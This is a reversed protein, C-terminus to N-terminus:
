TRRIDPPIPPARAPWLVSRSGGCRGRSAEVGSQRMPRLSLGARARSSHDPGSPSGGGKATCGAQCVRSAAEGAGEMQGRSRMTLLRGTEYPRQTNPYIQKAGFRGNVEPGRQSDVKHVSASGISRAPGVSGWWPESVRSLLRCGAWERTRVGAIM